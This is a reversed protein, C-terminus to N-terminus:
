PPRQLYGAIVGGLNLLAATAAQTIRIVGNAHHATYYGHQTLVHVVIIAVVDALGFVLTVTTLPNMKSASATPEGAGFVTFHPDREGAAASAQHPMSDVVVTYLVYAIVGVIAVGALCLVLGVAMLYGPHGEFLLVDIGFTWCYLAAIIIFAFRLLNWTLIVTQTGIRKAGSAITTGLRIMNHITVDLANGTFDAVRATSQAIGNLVQELRDIPSM